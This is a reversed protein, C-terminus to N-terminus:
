IVRGSLLGDHDGGRKKKFQGQPLVTTPASFSPLYTTAMLSM